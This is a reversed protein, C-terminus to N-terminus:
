CKGNKSREVELWLKKYIEEPNKRCQLEIENAAKHASRLPIKKTTSNQQEASDNKVEDYPYGRCMLNREFFEHLLIYKREIPAVDEEIWIENDSVFKYVKDHGGETFDTFYFDRVLDGRVIWVKVKDSYGKILKKKIKELLQERTPEIDGFEERIKKISREESEVIDAADIAENYKKGESMLKHEVLLHKIFYETEDVKGYQKDIWFEDIPIFKFRHHQGFNTFEIDINTRIFHGDVIFVKFGEYEGYKSM